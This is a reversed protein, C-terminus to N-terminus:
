LLIFFVYITIAVACSKANFITVKCCQVIYFICAIANKYYVNQLFSKLSLIYM